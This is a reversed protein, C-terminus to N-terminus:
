RRGPPSQPDHFTGQSARQFEELAEKSMVTVSDGPRDKRPINSGTVTQKQERERNNDATTVCGPLLAVVISLALLRRM